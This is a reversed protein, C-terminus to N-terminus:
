WFASEAIELLVLGFNDNDSIFSQGLDSIGGNKCFHYGVSAVATKNNGPKMERTKCIIFFFVIAIDITM